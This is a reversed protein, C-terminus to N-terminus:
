RLLIGFSVGSLVQELQVFKRIGGHRREVPGSVAWRDVGAAPHVALSRDAFFTAM